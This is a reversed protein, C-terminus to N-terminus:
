GGERGGVSTVATGQRRAPGGSRGDLEVQYNILKVKKGARRRRCSVATGILSGCVSQGGRRGFRVLAAGNRIQVDM